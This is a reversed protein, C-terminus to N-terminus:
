SIYGFRRLLDIAEARDSAIRYIGEPTLRGLRELTRGAVALGAQSRRVNVVRALDAGDRVAEADAKSLDTIRGAAFLDRPSHALGASNTPVNVCRCGPHRQFGDSWRYFRGALIACRSCCAGGVERVYGGVAPRAALAVGGAIRSADAIQTVAMLRLAAESDAMELLTQTSVGSSAGTFAQPVVDGATPADIRQEALQDAVATRANRAARVQLLTLGRTLTRLDSRQWARRALAEGGVVLRDQEAKHRQASLLM